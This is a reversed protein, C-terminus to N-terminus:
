KQEWAETVEKGYGDEDEESHVSSLILRAAVLGYLAGAVALNGCLLNAVGILSLTLTWM